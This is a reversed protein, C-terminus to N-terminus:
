GIKKSKIFEFIGAYAFMSLGTFLLPLTLNGTFLYLILSVIGGFSRGLNLFIERSYMLELSNKKKDLMLALPFPFFIVRFFNVLSVAIFWMVLNDAFAAFVTSFAIGLASFFIFKNRHGTADSLKSLFFASFVSLITALSMFLGFEAPKPFYQITIIVLIFVAAIHHIGELFFLTRFGNLVRLSKSFNISVKKEPALKIAVIAAFVLIMITITFVLDFGFQQAIFGSFAPMALSIITMIANYITGHGATKKNKLDFWFANFPVWFLFFSFAGIVYLLIVGTFGGILVLASYALAVSLIGLPMAIKSTYDRFFLLLILPFLFCLTGFLLMNEITFGMDVFAPFLVSGALALGINWLVFIITLRTFEDKLHM